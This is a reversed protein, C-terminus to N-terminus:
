DLVDFKREVSQIQFGSVSEDVSGGGGGGVGEFDGVVCRNVKKGVTYFIGVSLMGLTIIFYSYFNRFTIGDYLEDERTLTVPLLVFLSYGFGYIYCYAIHIWPTALYETFIPLWSFLSAFLHYMLSSTHCLWLSWCRTKMDEFDDSALMVWYFISLFLESPFAIGHTISLLKTLRSTPPPQTLEHIFNLFSYLAFLMFTTNSFYAFYMYGIDSAFGMIVGTIGFIMVIAKWILNATNSIGKVAYLRKMRSTTTEM